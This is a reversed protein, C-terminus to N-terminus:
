VGAVPATDLVKSDGCVVLLTGALARVAPLLRAAAGADGNVALVVIPRGTLRGSERADAHFVDDAAAQQAWYGAEGFSLEHAAWPHLEGTTLVLIEGPARGSDLLLDVAEDAAAPAGEASAPILQVQPVAGSVSPEPTPTPRPGPVPGAAPTVRAAPGPRPAPRPVPAPRPGPVPRPTQAARSTTPAAGSGQASEPIPPEEFAPNLPM